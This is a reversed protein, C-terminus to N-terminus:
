KAEEIIPEGSNAGANGGQLKSMYPAFAAELAKKKEAYEEATRSLASPVAKLWAEGEALKANAETQVSADLKKFLEKVTYLYSDLETYAAIIVKNKEDQEQFKVAEEQMRKIEEPSSVTKDKTITIEQESGSSSESATVSLIGNSDISCKVVIKPEGRPAPPIGNLHFEGLKHNDAVMAREGEFIVISVATQNDSYTSFTQTKTTPITTNKPVIPTFVGGATEIGISLPIVDLLLLDNDGELAEGNLVAAQIAAGQAVAEDPHVSKNLAKGNFFDSLMKQVKPIRTSGGVLIIEDINNKSLKADGLTKEVCPILKDFFVKCLVEFKARTLTYCLDLGKHFSDVIIQVSLSSSLTRKANEIQARLRALSRATLGSVDMNNEKAFTEAIQKALTHDLDSGGLHTDGGTAKVEFFGKEVALISVDFTGGGFDFVLIKKESDGSAQDMGYAVAAATPENIIRLVELGAMTGAEKTLERQNNKFYAPVTVVAKNVPAGLYEEACDKLYKLVMSSIQEPYYKVQQGGKTVEIMPKNAPGKVVSFPWHKIDKQVNEDDYTLGILRKADYITNVPDNRANNAATEGILLENETFAVISPTTRGGSKNIIIEPKGNQMVSMCSNTTGLDIGIAYEKAKAM